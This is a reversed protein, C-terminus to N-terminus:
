NQRVRLLEPEDGTGIAMACDSPMCIARTPVHNFGARLIVDLIKRVKPLSPKKM